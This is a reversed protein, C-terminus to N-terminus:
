SARSALFTILILGGQSSFRHRLPNIAIVELYVDSLRFLRNYTGFM